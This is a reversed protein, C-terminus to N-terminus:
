SVPAFMPHRQLTAHLARRRAPRVRTAKHTDARRNGLPSHAAILQHRARRVPRTDIQLPEGTDVLTADGARALVRVRQREGRRALRQGIRATSTLVEVHQDNRTDGVVNATQPHLEVRRQAHRELLREASLV